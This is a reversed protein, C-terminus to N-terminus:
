ACNFKELEEMGVFIIIKEYLRRFGKMFAVITDEAMRLARTRQV